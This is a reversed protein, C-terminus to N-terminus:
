AFGCEKIKYLLAKYSIQLIEAAKRKNGRTHQLVRSILAGEAKRAVQKDIEKLATPRGSEILESFDLDIEEIVMPSSAALENHIIREDRLVVYRKIMNELERINGPWDHRQFADLLTDPLRPVKKNFQRSFKKLFSECFVPIEEKRERLPPVHLNIVNLRYYLDERFSREAIMAELNKNTAALVRVDVRLNLKGGLHAYEGDQLVQLLKAQTALSIEGIEDLFITGGEALEFKGPKTRTAGTFAGKEYGFLESELLDQPLAACNVKVFPRASRHSLAHVRRAVVEKGVGSEGHILVTVDTEAVQLIVEEVSRMKESLFIGEEGDDRELRERLRRIEEVLGAREFVNKLAIEIEEPEFPKVLYDSAGLRMAEVITQTHDVGTLMIVPLQERMARLKKLVEVGSLGEMIIDLIVLSPDLGKEFAGLAEEGSAFCSVQYGMSQLLTELYARFSRDDDIVALHKRSM